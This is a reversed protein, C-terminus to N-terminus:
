GAALQERVQEEYVALQAALGEGVFASVVGFSEVVLGARANLRLFEENAQLATVQDLSGRILVFGALDGGHPQLLVPEFSEIEGREALGSYFELTRGLLELAQPERARAPQGFGVFIAADAM